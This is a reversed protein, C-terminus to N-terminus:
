LTSCLIIPLKGHTREGNMVGWSIIRKQRDKSLIGLSIKKGSFTKLVKQYALAIEPHTVPLFQGESPPPPTLLIAIKETMGWSTLCLALSAQTIENRSLDLSSCPGGTERAVM